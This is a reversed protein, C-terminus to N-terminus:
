AVLAFGNPRVLLGGANKADNQVEFTYHFGFPQDTLNLNSVSAQTIRFLSLSGALLDEIPKIQDSSKTVTRLRWRESL